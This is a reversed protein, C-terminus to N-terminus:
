CANLRLTLPNEGGARPHAPYVGRPHAGRPTKGARAPILRGRLPAQGEADLKGRGRPSSGGCWPPGVVRRPNEGGARPHAQRDGEIVGPVDTKGARAPILRLECSPASSPAPKGRGRPSSGDTFSVTRSGTRNEGGARPHAGALSLRPSRSPTKGARAPILGLALREPVENVPKGRGRPSSGM